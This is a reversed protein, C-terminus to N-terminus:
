FYGFPRLEVTMTALSRRPDSGEVFPPVFSSVSVATSRAENWGGPADDNPASLVVVYERQGPSGLDLLGGKLVPGGIQTELAGETRFIRTTATGQGDFALSSCDWKVLVSGAPALLNVAVASPATPQPLRTCTKLVDSRNSASGDPFEATVDIEYSRNPELGGADASTAVTSLKITGALSRIEIHYRVATTVSDWALGLSTARRGHEVDPDLRLRNPADAAM